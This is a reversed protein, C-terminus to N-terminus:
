PPRRPLRGREVFADMLNEYCVRDSISSNTDTVLGSDLAWATSPIFLTHPAQSVDWTGRSLKCPHNGVRVGNMERLAFVGESADFFSVFGIGARLAGSILAYSEPCLGSSVFGYGARLAGATRDSM